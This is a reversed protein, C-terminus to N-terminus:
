VLNKLSLVTDNLMVIRHRAGSKSPQSTHRKKGKRFTPRWDLEGRQICQVGSNQVRLSFSFDNSIAPTRFLRYYIVSPSIWPFHNRPIQFLRTRILRTGSYKYQGPDVIQREM